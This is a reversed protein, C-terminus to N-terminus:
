DIFGIRCPTYLKTLGKKYYRQVIKPSVGPNRKRSNLFCLRYLPIYSLYILKNIQKQRFSRKHIGATTISIGGCLCSCDCIDLFCPRENHVLAAIVLSIINMVSAVVVLMSAIFKLGAKRENGQSHKIASIGSITAVVLSLLILGLALYINM